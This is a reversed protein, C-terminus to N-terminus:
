SSFFGKYFNIARDRYVNYFKETDNKLKEIDVPENKGGCVSGGTASFWEYVMEKTVEIHFQFAYANSGYRFAQNPYLDSRALRVAGEPIDFTEGHWHFVKFRKWFDGEDPHIALKQMLPDKVGDITLEVDYWGVEKQHGAYVRSGLAKAMIQAGLCVGLIKKRKSIFDRVLKEEERIYPYIESENVSMHGGMMILTNFNDSNPLAEGTSLEVIKYPINKLRLYDEITGPGETEINKCILIAM